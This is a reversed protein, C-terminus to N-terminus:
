TLEKPDVGALTWNVTGSLEVQQPADLGNLKRMAENIKVIVELAKLAPADDEIPRLRGDKDEYVIQGNSIAVHRRRLIELAALRAAELRANETARLSAVAEVPIRDLM